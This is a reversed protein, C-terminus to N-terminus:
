QKRRPAERAAGRQTLFADLAQLSTANRRLEQMTVFPLPSNIRYVREYNGEINSTDCVNITQSEGPKGNGYVGNAVKVKRDGVYMIESTHAM